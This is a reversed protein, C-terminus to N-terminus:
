SSQGIRNVDALRALSLVYRLEFGHGHLDIYGFCLGLRRRQKIARESAFLDDDRPAPLGM